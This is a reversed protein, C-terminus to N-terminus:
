AASRREAIVLYTAHLMNSLDNRMPLPLSFPAEDGQPARQCEPPSGHSPLVDERGRVSSYRKTVPWLFALVPQGIV